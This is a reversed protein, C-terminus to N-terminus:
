AEQITIVSSNSTLNAVVVDYEPGLGDLIYLLLEEDSMSVGSANLEDGIEKMKLVYESISCSDKKTTQLLNRLHLTRAKFVSQFHLELISWIEYATSCKAVNKEGTEESTVILFMPPCVKEGTVFVDLGHSSLAPLIQSKWFTYNREQLKVSLSPLTPLTSPSTVAVPGTEM